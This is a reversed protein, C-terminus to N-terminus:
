TAEEGGEGGEEGEEELPSSYSRLNEAMEDLRKVVRANITEEPYRGSEDRQGARIGTLIEIGQDVHDIPYVHFKGRRVAEVVDERLMLNKVNKRPIIVGQGGTLGKVKCVDFFGEIKRNVGGIPQIEGRQNVSGTVAIGQKIPADAITSLIAFLETSSASDGDITDYSQEFCVSASLSLPKDEAYKGSLFGSLILIGKDHTRGSLDAKREINVVGEKGLYTQVTIRSPKGFAFDGLDYISLGNVQGIVEGDVDVMITGDEILENIQEEILSLRYEKEAVAKRVEEATVLGNVGQETWYSSERIIDAIDSFRLSLKERDEVIRSGYDVVTAVAEPTFHKLGENRCLTAIFAAYEQISKETRDMMETFDARVKFIKKFEDDYAYLIRFVYPSGTMIVKLVIPIPEPKPGGTSILRHQEAAEEIKIEDNKLVRKIAEYSLPNRLVDEANVILYGGNAKLISGAKIMTFDTYYAGFQARREIQGVLNIYTPNTEFLVPAGKTYRNDVIVNVEYRVLPSVDKPLNLGPIQIQEEGESGLFDKLNVLVDEQVDDLFGLIKPYDRFRDQLEDIFHGVAFLAVEKNLKELEEKAKREMLSVERLVDRVSKNLEKQRAEIDERLDERLSQYDEGKVAVGDILPITVIGAPTSKIQFGKKKAEEEIKAILKRKKDAYKEALARNRDRYNDSEFASPLGRKLNEVLEKMGTKFECGKGPPLNIALPKDPDQFNNVYLWDDPIEGNESVKEVFRKVLTAKGTGALGAVYINYGKSKMGLGFGISKVAREQSIIEDTIELGETSKFTFLSPDCRARLDEVKLKEIAM